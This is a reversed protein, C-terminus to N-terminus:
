GSRRGAPRGRSRTSVAEATAASPRGSRLRRGGRRPAWGPEGPPPRAQRAEPSCREGTGHRRCGCGAARAPRLTAPRTPAWAWRRVRADGGRGAMGVLIGELAADAAAPQEVDAGGREDEADPEEHLVGEVVVPDVSVPRTSMPAAIPRTSPRQAAMADRAAAVREVPLDHGAAPEGREVDRHERREAEVGQDAARRREPQHHEDRGAGRQGRLTCRECPRATKATTPPKRM